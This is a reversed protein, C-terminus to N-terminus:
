INPGQIARRMTPLCNVLRTIKKKDGYTARGLIGAGRGVDSSTRGRSGRGRTGHVGSGYYVARSFATDQKTM